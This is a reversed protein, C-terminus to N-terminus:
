KDMLYAVRVSDLEGDIPSVLLGSSYEAGALAAREVEGVGYLPHEAETAVAIEEGELVFALGALALGDLKFTVVFADAEICVALEHLVELGVCAVAGVVLLAGVLDHASEYEGQLLCAVEAALYRVEAGPSLSNNSDLSFRRLRSLGCVPTNAGPVLANVFSLGSLAVSYM